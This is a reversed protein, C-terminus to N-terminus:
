QREGIVLFQKGFLPWVVPLRLYVSLASVPPRFGGSMTYPLFRGIKKEIRFNTLRLVEALSEETIPVYHDWFDWYAGPVHKVNPGMCIIRGGKKLCRYAQHLTVEISRKDPLHEFFNSTFVVDLSEDDLPWRASCDQHLFESVGALRRGCDENLDMAYKKGAVINRSFEGWGAGLDLLIASPSVHQAFYDSCLVRWVADRYEEGERFRQEYERQLLGAREDMM